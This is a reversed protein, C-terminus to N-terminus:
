GGTDSIAAPQRQMDVQRARGQSTAMYRESANSAKGKSTAPQPEGDVDEDRAEAGGGVM